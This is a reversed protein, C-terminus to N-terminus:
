LCLTLNRGHLRGAKGETIQEDQIVQRVVREEPEKERFSSTIIDVYTCVEISHFLIYSSSRRVYVLLM